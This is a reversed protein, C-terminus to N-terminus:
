NKNGKLLSVWLGWLVQCFTTNALQLFLENSFSSNQNCSVSVQVKSFCSFTGTGDWLGFNWLGYLAERWFVKVWWILKSVAMQVSLVKPLAACQQSHCTVSTGWACSDLFLLMLLCPHSGTAMSACLGRPWYSICAGQKQNAVFLSCFRLANGLDEWYCLM